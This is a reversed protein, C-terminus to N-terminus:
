RDSGSNGIGMLPEIRQVFRQGLDVSGVHGFSRNGLWRQRLGRRRETLRGHLRRNLRQSARTAFDSM